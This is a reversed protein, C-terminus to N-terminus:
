ELPMIYTATRDNWNTMTADAMVDCTRRLSEYKGLTIYYGNELRGTVEFGQMQLELVNYAKGNQATIRMRKEKKAYLELKRLCLRSILM